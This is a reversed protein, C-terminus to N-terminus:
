YYRKELNTIREHHATTTIEHAIVRAILTSFLHYIVGFISLVGGVTLPYLVYILLDNM